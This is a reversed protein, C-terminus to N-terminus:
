QATVITSHVKHMNIEYIFTSIIIGVKYVMGPGRRDRCNPM